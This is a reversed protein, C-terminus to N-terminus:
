LRRSHIPVLLIPKGGEVAISDEIGGCFGIEVVDYSQSGVGETAGIATTFRIALPRCHNLASTPM